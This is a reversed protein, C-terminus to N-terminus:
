PVFWGEGSVAAIVAQDDGKQGGPPFHAQVALPLRPQPKRQLPDFEPIDEPLSGAASGSKEVYGYFHHSITEDTLRLCLHREPESFAGNFYDFRQAMVLLLVPKEPRTELFEGISMDGTGTFSRWDILWGAPSEVCLLMSRTGDGLQVGTELIRQDMVTRPFQQSVITGGLPLGGPRTDCWQRISSEWVGPDRVCLLLDEPTRASLFQTAVTRVSDRPPLEQGQPLGGASRAAENRADLSTGALHFGLYIALAGGLTVVASLFLWHHPAPAPAPPVDGPDAPQLFPLNRSIGDRDMRREMRVTGETGGSVPLGGTPGNVPLTPSAQWGSRTTELTRAKEPDPRLPRIREMSEMPPPASAPEPLAQEASEGPDAQLQQGCRLCWQEWLENMPNFPTIRRCHPCFLELYAM